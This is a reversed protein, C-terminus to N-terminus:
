SLYVIYQVGITVTCLCAIIHIDYRKLQDENLKKLLSTPSYYDFNELGGMAKHMTSVYEVGRMKEHKYHDMINYVGSLGTVLDIIVFHCIKM